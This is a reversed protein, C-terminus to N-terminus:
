YLNEIRINSSTGLVDKEGDGFTSETKISIQGLVNGNVFLTM